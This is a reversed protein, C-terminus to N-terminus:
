QPEPCVETPDYPAAAGNYHSQPLLVGPWLWWQWMVNNPLNPFHPLGLAHGIEHCIVGITREEFDPEPADALEFVDWGVLAYQMWGWGNAGIDDATLGKVFVLAIVGDEVIYPQYNRWVYGTVKGLSDPAKFDDVTVNPDTSGLPQHVLIARNYQMFWDQIKLRFRDFRAREEPTFYSDGPCIFIPLVVQKDKFLM